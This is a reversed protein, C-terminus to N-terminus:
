QLAETSNEFNIKELYIIGLTLSYSGSLYHVEGFNNRIISLATILCTEAKFYNKM